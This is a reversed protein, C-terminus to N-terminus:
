KSGPLRGLTQIWHPLQGSVGLIGVSALFVFAVAAGAEKVPWLKWALFLSVFGAATSVAYFIADELCRSWMITFGSVNPADLPGPRHPLEKRLREDGLQGKWWEFEQEAHHSVKWQFFAGRAAQYLTVGSGIIL